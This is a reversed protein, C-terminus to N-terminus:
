HKELYERSYIKLMRANQSAKKWTPSKLQNNWTLLAGKLENLRGPYKESLDQKEAIDNKLDFLQFRGRDAGSFYIKWDGSRAAMQGSWRWFMYKHPAGTASGSIYPLLNVGDFKTDKNAKEGAAALVTPIVDLSSVAKSYIQGGKLKAPWQLIFPIRIGGEFCKGKWGRLPANSGETEDLKKNSSKYPAGNDSIFFVMTNKEIGLKRLTQMIRGVGDDLATIMGAYVRRRPNKIHMNRKLYKEPAQFPSHPANYAVYICFPKGAKQAKEIMQITGDTLLDTLYRKVHIRSKRDKGTCLMVYDPIKRPLPPDYYYRCGTLFGYWMDFGRNLPHAWLCRGLDWKGVAGTLYGDQRMYDGLTKKSRDLGFSNRFVREPNSEHGFRQQYQGTLLAARSPSCQPATVYGDTFRVGNHALKDINPTRIDESGQCSLDNYGMDDAFIVMVNPKQSNTAHVSISGATLTMLLTNRLNASFKKM